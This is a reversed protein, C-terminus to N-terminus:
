LGAGVAPQLRGGAALRSRELTVARGAGAAVALPFGDVAFDYLALAPHGPAAAWAPGGAVVIGDFPLELGEGLAKAYAEKRVWLRFFAGTAAATSDRSLERLRLREAATCAADPFSRLPVPAEVDVGVDGTGTLAIAALHGAYSFSYRLGARDAAPLAPKGHAGGCRRCCQAVTVRAADGGIAGAVVAKFATRARSFRLRDVPRAFRAARATERADLVPPVGDDDLALDVVSVFVAGM